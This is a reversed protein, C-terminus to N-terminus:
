RFKKLRKSALKRSTLVRGNLLGDIVDRVIRKLLKLSVDSADDLEHSFRLVDRGLISKDLSESVRSFGQDFVFQYHGDEYIREGTAGERTFDIGYGLIDLFELEFSRLLPEIPRSRSLGDLTLYMIKFLRQDPEGEFIFKQLLELVYFGAVVRDGALSFRGTDEFSSVTRLSSRGSLGLLGVAFPQLRQFGYRKSLRRVGAIKGLSGTLFEVIERGEGYPRSHIVIAKVLSKAKLIEGDFAEEVIVWGTCAM